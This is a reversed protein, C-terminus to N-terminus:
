AKGGFLNKMKFITSDWMRTWWGGEPSNQLALVPVTSVTKGDIILNLKGLTQGKQIPAKVPYNMVLTSKLQKAQGPQLTVYTDQMMGVPIEKVAGSWVRAQTLVTGAAYLKHTEFFRFGYNLLRQTEEARAADTPAGMVVSILRTGNRVGSAALCYGAEDTHGTKIGDVSPDRWLLRNRNPQKIGNFLFWKQSYWKYDEPFNRILARALIAIDRPTTYQDPNPLGTSDVYHTNKMGLAAAQQNMLNAFAEETGAIHEAMAICADNGSQVIIGQLLDRVSITNGVKIFMKSGGTRWAKESVQVQDDLRIRGEELAISIIYSTMMKTLSAPPLREDPNHAALTNGSAADTLIYGKVNLSPPPPTVIPRAATAAPMNLTPVPDAAYAVNLMMLGTFLISRILLM